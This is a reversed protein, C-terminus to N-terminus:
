RKLSERVRSSQFGLIRLIWIRSVIGTSDPFDYIWWNIELPHVPARKAYRCITFRSRSLWLIPSRFGRFSIKMTSCDFPTPLKSLLASLMCASLPLVRYRSVSFPFCRCRLFLMWPGMDWFRLDFFVFRSVSM